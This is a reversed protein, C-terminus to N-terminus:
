SQEGTKRIMNRAGQMIEDHPTVIPEITRRLGLKKLMRISFTRRGRLLANLYSQSIGLTKAAAQQTPYRAVFAELYYRPKRSWTQM